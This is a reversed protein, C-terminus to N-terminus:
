EQIVVEKFVWVNHKFSITDKRIKVCVRVGKTSFRLGGAEAKLNCNYVGM